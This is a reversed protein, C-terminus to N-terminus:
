GPAPVAVEGADEALGRDHRAPGVGEEAGAVAADGAAAAPLLGDDRDAPGQQHDDPVQEGVGVGAEVFEAGVVVVSVDVGEGFSAVVDALEFREAVADGAFGGGSGPVQRIPDM